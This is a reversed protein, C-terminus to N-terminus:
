YLPLNGADILIKLQQPDLAMLGLNLGSFTGSLCLLLGIVLVQFLITIKQVEQGFKQNGVSCRYLIVQFPIPLITDREQQVFTVSQLSNNGAYIWDDNSSKNRLCFYYTDATISELKSGLKTNLRIRGIQNAVTCDDFLPEIEITPTHGFEDCSDGASANSSQELKQIIRQFM